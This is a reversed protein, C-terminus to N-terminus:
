RAFQLRKIMSAQSSYCWNAILADIITHTKLNSHAAVHLLIATNPVVALDGEVVL